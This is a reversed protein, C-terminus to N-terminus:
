SGQARALGEEKRDKCRTTRTGGTGAQPGADSGSRCESASRTGGWGQSQKGRAWPRGVEDCMLSEVATGSRDPRMASCAVEGCGRRWQSSRHCRCLDSGFNPNPSARMGCGVSQAGWEHRAPMAVDTRVLSRRDTSCKGVSWMDSARLLLSSSGSNTPEHVNMFNAACTEEGSYEANMPSNIWQRARRRASSMANHVSNSWAVRLSNLPPLQM